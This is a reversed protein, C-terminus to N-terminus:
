VVSKRDALAPLVPRMHKPNDVVDGFASEMGWLGLMTYRDVGYKQEIRELLAAHQKARERGVTIRWDSVRRNLYQWVLERFEPQAKDLAYVSTDPMLGGMVRTYTAESVGRARARARFAAVWQEFPQQATQASLSSTVLATASWATGLVSRRSLLLPPM